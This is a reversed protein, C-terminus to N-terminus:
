RQERLAEAEKKLRNMEALRQYEDNARETIGAADKWKEFAMGAVRAFM